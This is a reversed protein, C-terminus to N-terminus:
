APSSKYNLIEFSISLNQIERWTETQRLFGLHIVQSIRVLSALIEPNEIQRPGPIKQDRSLYISIIGPYFIGPNNVKFNPIDRSIGPNKKSLYKDKIELLFSNKM